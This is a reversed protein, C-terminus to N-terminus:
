GSTSDKPYFYVVVWKGLVDKLCVKDAKISPLCFAPAKAGEKLM